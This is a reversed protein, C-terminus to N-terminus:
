DEKIFDRYSGYCIMRLMNRCTIEDLNDIFDGVADMSRTDVVKILKKLVERARIIDEM